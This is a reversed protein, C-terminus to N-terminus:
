LSNVNEKQRTLPQKERPLTLNRQQRTTTTETPKKM